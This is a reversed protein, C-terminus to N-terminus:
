HPGVSVSEMKRKQEQSLVQRKRHCCVARKEIATDIYLTLSCKFPVQYIQAEQLYYEDDRNDASPLFINIGFKQIDKM